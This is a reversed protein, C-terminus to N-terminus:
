AAEDWSNPLHPIESIIKKQNPLSAVCAGLFFSTIAFYAWLISVIMPAFGGFLATTSEANYHLYIWYFSKLALFGGLFSVAGEVCAFLPTKLLWKYLLTVTIASSLMTFVQWRAIASIIEKAYTDKHFQDIFFNTFFGNEGWEFSCLLVGILAVVTSLARLNEMIIGGREKTATVKLLGSVLTSFFGKTTWALLVLNLFTLPTNKLHSQTLESIQALLGHSSVPIISKLENFLQLHAHAMDNQFLGMMFTACSLVPIISLLGYFTASGVFLGGSNKDYVYYGHICANMFRRVVAFAVGEYLNSAVELVRNTTEVPNLFRLRGHRASVEPVDQDDSM